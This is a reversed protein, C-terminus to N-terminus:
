YLHIALFWTQVLFVLCLLLSIHVRCLPDEQCVDDDELANRIVDWDCYQVWCAGVLGCFYCFGGWVVVAHTLLDSENARRLMLLGWLLKGILMVYFLFFNRKAVVDRFTKRLQEREQSPDVALLAKEM